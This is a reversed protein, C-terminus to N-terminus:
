IPLFRRFSGVDGGMARLALSAWHTSRLGCPTHRNLHRLSDVLARGDLGPRRGQGM